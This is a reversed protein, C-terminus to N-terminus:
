LILIRQDTRVFISIFEIENTLYENVVLFYVQWTFTSVLCNIDYMGL